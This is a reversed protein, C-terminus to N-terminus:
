ASRRQPKSATKKAAGEKAPTESQIPLLMEQNARLCVAAGPFSFVIGSAANVQTDYSGAASIFGSMQSKIVQYEHHARNAAIM